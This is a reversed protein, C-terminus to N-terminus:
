KLVDTSKVLVAVHERRMREFVTLLRPWHSLSHTRDDADVHSTQYEFFAKSGVLVLLQQARSLLVNMRSSEDLFGIGGIDRIADHNKVLSVVVIDAENGQFSDVTHVLRGSLASLFGKAILGSEIRADVIARRLYSMQDRYPTLVAVTTGGRAESQQLAKLFALVVDAEYRNINRGDPSQAAIRSAKAWPTEIWVVAKGRVEPPEVLAHVVRDEPLGASTVTANEIEGNYYVDSVISGISPHM